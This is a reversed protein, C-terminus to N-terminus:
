FYLEAAVAIFAGMIAVGLKKANFSHSTNTEFIITTSIHLFSGSVIAFLITFVQPSFANEEVYYDGLFLGLPSALSFILLFIIATNRKKLHCLLISMLAFAAPAKHLVIGALLSMSEHHAHITSPHALLSGELFSHVSLAILVMIASSKGHKHDGEHEHMHGHEAGASFYELIQQVFFGVLIYLGITIPDTSRAFLEPLIHIITIAFLYAGAFVLALKYKNGQNQPVFLALIGPAFASFFLVLLNIAM